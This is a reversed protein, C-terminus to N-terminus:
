QRNKESKPKKALGYPCHRCKSKCCFGRRQLYLSTFVMLGNELYYDEGEVHFTTTIVKM